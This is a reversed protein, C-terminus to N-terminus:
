FTVNIGAVYTRARPYAAYDVGPTTPDSRRTNADPDYGSYSTIIALNNVTAYLRLSAMKIKKILKKPFNYSLTVNNIRIYSGDEVGYSQSYFGNVSTSPFWIKANSNVNRMTVSDVGLIYTTGSITVVRQTSNGNADIMRWRDLNSSLQNVQSGYANGYELKNANFVDNGVVFNAFVSLEFNKYTFTQNLGGFFKPQARGIITRDNDADVKGDKNLDRYKPSGPQLPNALITANTVVGPKLIYQTNYQPYLANSFPATYFDDLSYYGDNIYGYMAGVEDGVRLLYDAPFNNASFWGSNRLIQKNPGLSTIKNKNFSINFNAAYTFDRKNVIVGSLQLEIGKNQTSGINQFQSTYGSSSPITQNLLLHDSKNIYAEFSGSLRNQFLSFDIGLNQAIQSEWKLGENGLNAPTFIGNLAGNLGYGANAPSSFQTRYSFPTIRNNGSAGYSYRIRLDNIKSSAFFKEKSIRWSVIGSPFYGWRNDEGFISTGDARLTFKAYYRQDYSYDMTTFFSALATPVKTSSPLSQPFATTSAAALQLNNFAQDSTVGIPFYRITQATASNTTKQIEQGVLVTFSNKSGFFSPNSYTLVNSNTIQIGEGDSLVVLPQKNNSKANNTLTDDFSRNKVRNVNYALTTRFTLYKILNVQVYGNINFQTQYRKRTEANALLIPNLINFGNGANQLDLTADYSEEEEGPLILPKYRTFQRLRNSGAGSADSTGAGRILQDSYRANFGFRFRENARHDLKFNLNKRTLDSNILIGDQNFATLSLNYTTQANGGTIYVNHSSQMADRGMTREQWDFSPYSKYQQVGAWSIPSPVYRTIASDALWMMREYQYEVFEYANFMDIKQALKQVGFFGNYGVITKGNTNRGGKTTIVMVGNAGRSGYIATSAADKLVNISEIDQPNIIQLANDTPVGDVVYLPESSQTISGRGRINIVADAGPQGESMTIQVGALRGQLVEVTNSLPNDKIDKSSIISSATPLDRRRYSQYGVIIVENLANFDSALTVNVTNKRAVSIEQPTFGVSSFELVPNGQGPVNISFRGDNDTATGTTSGKLNVSVGILPQRTSDSIVVGTITRTQSWAACAFLSFLLFLSLKKKM